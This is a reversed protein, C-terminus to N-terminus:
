PPNHRLFGGHQSVLRGVFEKSSRTSESGKVLSAITTIARGVTVKNMCMVEAAEAASVSFEGFAALHLLRRQTGSFRESRYARDLYLEVLRQTQRDIREGRWGPATADDLARQWDVRPGPDITREPARGDSRKKDADRVVQSPGPSARVRQVTPTVGLIRGVQTAFACQDPFPVPTPECVFAVLRAPPAGVSRLRDAMEIPDFDNVAPLPTPEFYLQYPSDGIHRRLDEDSDAMSIGIHDVNPTSPAFWSTGISYWLVRM